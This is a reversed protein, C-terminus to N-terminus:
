GANGADTVGVTEAVWDTVARAKPSDGPLDYLEAQMQFGRGEPDRPFALGLWLGEREDMWRLVSVHGGLAEYEAVWAAPDFTSM